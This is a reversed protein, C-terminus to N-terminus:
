RMATGTCRSANAIAYYLKDMERDDLLIEVDDRVMKVRHDNNGIRKIDVIMNINIIHPCGIKDTIVTFVTTSMNM